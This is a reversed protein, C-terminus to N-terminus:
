QMRTIANLIVKEAKYTPVITITDRTSSIGNSVLRTDSSGTDFSWIYTGEDPITATFTYSTKVSIRTKDNAVPVVIINMTGQLYADAHQVLYDVYDGSFETKGKTEWYGGSILESPNTSTFSLTILGSAKEFNDIHFSSTGVYQIVTSWTSDFSRDFTQAFTNPPVAIITPPIYKSSGCGILIVLLPSVLKLILNKKM